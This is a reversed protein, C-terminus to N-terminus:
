AKLKIGYNSCENMIFGLESYIQTLCSSDITVVFGLTLLCSHDLVHILWDFMNFLHLNIEAAWEGVSVWWFVWTSRNIIPWQIVADIVHCWGVINVVKEGSTRSHQVNKGTTLLIRVWIYFLNYFFYAINECTNIYCFLFQFSYFSSLRTPSAITTPRKRGMWSQILKVLKIFLILVHFVRLISISGLFTNEPPDKRRVMPLLNRLLWTM